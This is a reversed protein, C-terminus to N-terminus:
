GDSVAAVLARALAAREIPKPLFVTMGAERYRAEDDASVHASCAIIPVDRRGHGASRLRKTAAVGGLGPMMIDMVVVDVAVEELASLAEFGNAAITVRHGLDELMRRMVERNLANDEVLLVHRAPGPAPMDSSLARDPWRAADPPVSVPVDFRFTAGEGAKSEVGVDAGLAEAINACISLGLGWGPRPGRGDAEIRVFPRYLRAVHEPAIGPGTDAVSFKVIGQGDAGPAYDARLTVGGEATFKVANALYNNLVQRIRGADSQVVRPLGPGRRVTFSLTKQAASGRWWGELDDILAHLDFPEPAIRMEGAEVQSLDLLDTLLDMMATGASLIARVHGASTADLDSLELLQAFGLIANMPTRIEHSMAALFRSKAQSAEEAEAAKRDLEELTARTPRLDELLAIGRQFAGDRDFEAFAACRLPVAAGAKDLLAIETAAAIGTEQLPHLVGDVFAAHHAGPMAESLLRGILADRAQGLLAALAASADTLRGRADFSLALLPAHAFLAGMADGPREAYHGRLGDGM